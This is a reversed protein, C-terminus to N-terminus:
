VTATEKWTDLTLYINSLNLEAQFMSLDGEPHTDKNSWPLHGPIEELCLQESFSFDVFPNIEKGVCM